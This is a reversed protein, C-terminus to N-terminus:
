HRGLIEYAFQIRRSEACIGCREYQNQFVVVSNELSNSGLINNKVRIYSGDLESMLFDLQTFISYPDPRSMLAAKRGGTWQALGDGDTRFGHEQMLNGMIGATQNRNFGKSMFYNWAIAENETPSTSKVGVVEVRETPEKTKVEQIVKRSVEKGNQMHIEYTVQKKGPTGPDQVLKYSVPKDGDRIQRVPSAIDEEVTVTQKGNRWIEVRLGSTLATTKSVSLTDDKGLNIGKTQMMKGVTGAHSYAQTTKGYLVLTFPTARDITVQIGAGYAAVDTIPQVTTIDEDQLIIGADKAIQKSTQYPSLVKQTTAGDIIVVPRARYINIDYSKAVLKESLAPEVLDREGVTIGGDKLAGEITRADTLIGIEKDRDHITVLKKGAPTDADAAFVRQGILMVGIVVAILAATILLWQHHTSTNRLTRM